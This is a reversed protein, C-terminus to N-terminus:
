ISLGATWNHVLHYCEKPKYEPTFHGGGKVTAYTLSFDGNDFKRTYGATENDVSWVRWSEVVNLYLSQIWKQTGINPIDMDHDGSFIIGRIDTNSLNKHYSVVSKIDDKYYTEDNVTSNCLQWPYPKTGERVELAENVGKFNVWVNCVEHNYKRCWPMPPTKSSTNISSSSSSPIIAYRCAPELIHATNINGILQNITQMSSNCAANTINLFNGNCNKDAAEFIEDAILGMRNAYPIRSNFDIDYDTGPSVLIYGKMNVYPKVGEKNDKLIDKLAIPIPNGSFGDGSFYIANAKFSEHIELWKHIFENLNSAFKYNTTNYGQQTTSYSFGTGVPGDLYLISMFKTWAYENEVLKPLSGDFTYSLDFSLPGNEYFFAWLSSCGPGGSIWFLIPDAKPDKESEVFYYFLQQTENDVGIYGTELKFPLSGDYGPLSTIITGCSVAQVLFILFIFIHLNM